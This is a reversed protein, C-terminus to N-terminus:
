LAYQHVRRYQKLLMKAQAPISNDLLESIQGDLGVVQKENEGSFNAAILTCARRIAQPLDSPPATEDVGDGYGFTGEVEVIYDKPFKGARSEIQCKGIQVRYEDSDWEDNDTKGVTHDYYTWLGTLTRVPWPLFISKGIVMERDVVLASASHDHFWFDRHCHEEIWRSALNIADEYKEELEAGSNRTERHVDTLTCYPKDLAM